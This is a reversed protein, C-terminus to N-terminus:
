RSKNLYIYKAFIDRVVSFHIELCKDCDDFILACCKKFDGCPNQMLRLLPSPTSILIECGNLIPINQQEENFSNLAIIRPFSESGKLKNAEDFVNQVVKFSSCVIVYYPGHNDRNVTKFKMLSQFLAVLYSATKGSKPSSVCCVSRGKLIVPWLYCQIASAITFEIKKLLNKFDPSFLHTKQISEAMTEMSPLTGNIALCRREVVSSIQPLAEGYVNVLEEDIEDQEEEAPIDDTDSDDSAYFIDNVDQFANQLDPLEDSKENSKVALQQMMNKLKETFPVKKGNPVSANSPGAECEMTSLSKSGRKDM